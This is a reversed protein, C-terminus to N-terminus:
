ARVGGRSGYFATYYSEEAKGSVAEVIVCVNLHVLGHCITEDSGHCITQPGSLSLSISPPSSLLISRSAPVQAILWNNCLTKKEGGGKM